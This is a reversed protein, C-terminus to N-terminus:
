SGNTSPWIMASVYQIEGNKLKEFFEDDHVEHILDVTENDEDFVYDVISTREFPKQKQINEDFSEAEVHDLDCKNEVCKEYEIGPRKIATAIHEKISEWTVRWENNNRKTNLGFTRVFKGKRGKWNDLINKQNLEVAVLYM